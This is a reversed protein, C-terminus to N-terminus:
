LAGGSDFVRGDVILGELIEKSIDILTEDLLKKM